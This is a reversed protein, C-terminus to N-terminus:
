KFTRMMMTMMTMIAASGNPSVAGSRNELTLTSETGQKKQTRSDSIHTVFHFAGHNVDDIVFM